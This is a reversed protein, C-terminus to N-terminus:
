QDIEEGIVDELNKTVIFTNHRNIRTMPDRKPNPNFLFYTYYLLQM